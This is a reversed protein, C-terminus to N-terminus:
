DDFHLANIQRVLSPTNRFLLLFAMRSEPDSYLQVRQEHPINESFREFLYENLEEEDLGEPANGIERRIADLTEEGVKRTYAPFDNGLGLAARIYALGEQLDLIYARLEEPGLEVPNNPDNSM